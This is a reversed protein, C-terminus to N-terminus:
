NYTRQVSMLEDYQVIIDILSQELASAAHEYLMNSPIDWYVDISNEALDVKLLVPGPVGMQAFWQRDHSGSVSIPLKSGPRANKKGFRIQEIDRSALHQLFNSELNVSLKTPTSHRYIFVNDDLRFMWWCTFAVCFITTVIITKFM